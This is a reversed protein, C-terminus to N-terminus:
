LIGLLTMDAATEATKEGDQRLRRLRKLNELTTPNHASIRGLTSCGDM